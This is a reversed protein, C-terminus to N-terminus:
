RAPQGPAAVYQGVEFRGTHPHTATLVPVGNIYVALQDGEVGDHVLAYHSWGGYLSTVSTTYEDFGVRWRLNGNEDPLTLYWRGSRRLANFSDVWHSAKETNGGLAFVARDGLCTDDFWAWFEITIASLGRTWTGSLNVSKTPWALHDAMYFDDLGDFQSAMGASGAIPHRNARSSLVILVDQVSAGVSITAYIQILGTGVM